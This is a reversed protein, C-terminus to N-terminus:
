DDDRLAKIQQISCCPILIKDSFTDKKHGTDPHSAAKESIGAALIIVEDTQRLVYGINHRTIPKADAIAEIVSDDSESWADLWSVEIIKM